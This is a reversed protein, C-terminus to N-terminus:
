RSCRVSLKLGIDCKWAIRTPESGKIGFIWPRLSYRYSILVASIWLLMSKLCAHIDMDVAVQAAHIWLAPNSVICRHTNIDTGVYIKKSRNSAHIWTYVNLFAGPARKKKVLASTWFRVRLEKKKCKKPCIIHSKVSFLIDLKLIRGTPTKSRVRAYWWFEQTSNTNLRCQCECSKPQAGPTSPNEGLPTWGDQQHVNKSNRAGEKRTSSPTVHANTTIANPSQDLGPKM